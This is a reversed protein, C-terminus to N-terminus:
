NITRRPGSGNDDHDGANAAFHTYTMTRRPGSGNDDHDGPSAAIYVLPVVTAAMRWPIGLRATPGVLASKGKDWRPGM